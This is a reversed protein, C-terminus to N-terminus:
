ARRMVKLSRLGIESSQVPRSQATWGTEVERDKSTRRGLAAVATAGEATEALVIVQNAGCKHLFAVYDHESIVAVVVAEPRRARPLFM